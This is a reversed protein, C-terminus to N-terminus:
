PTPTDRLEPPTDLEDFLADTFAACDEAYNSFSGARNPAAVMSALLRLAAEERKTLQTAPRDRNRLENM